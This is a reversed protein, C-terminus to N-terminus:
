RRSEKVTMTFQKGCFKISESREDNHSCKGKKREENKCGHYGHICCIIVECGSMRSLGLGCSPCSVYKDEFKNCDECVILFQNRNEECSREGAIFVCKCDLCFRRIDNQNKQDGYAKMSDIWWDDEQNKTEEYKTPYRCEGCKHIYENIFDGPKYKPRSRKRCDICNWHLGCELRFSDDSDPSFEDLCLYCVVILLETGRKINQILANKFEQRFKKIEENTIEYENFKGCNDKIKQEDNYNLEIFKCEKIDYRKPPKTYCCISNLKGTIDLIETLKFLPIRFKVSIIEFNCMGIISVIENIRNKLLYSNIEGFKTEEDWEMM